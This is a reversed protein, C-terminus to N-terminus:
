IIEKVLYLPRNKMEEYIKGVYEGIIGLCILQIGGLLLVIIVISTWGIIATHLVYKAVLAYIGYLFGIFASALGLLTALRLPIVSFSTLGTWSFSLMRTLSYKTSGAFRAERDYEVSCQNYGVWAVMGRVYRHMERMAKLADVARRSMLRFDGVDVPMDIQAIEKILRYYIKATILKFSTEGQRKRRKAHVVDFGAKWKAVMEPFLEPPDQLDGDIVIVADGDAIDIGATIALQHGFNRSLDVVKIQPFAPKQDKLIALTRDRSGDNVFLIEYRCHMGELVTSLRKVCEAAGDEENYMPVVVSLLFNDPISATSNPQDSATM